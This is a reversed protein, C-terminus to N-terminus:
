GMMREIAEAAAHDSRDGFLHAYVKLTIVPSSHGLRRSVSVVDIGAKVLASAHTHRLAHFTINPVGRIRRIQRNWQVSLNNPRIPSGDNESFVLADPHRLLNGRHQALDAMATPPLSIKRRGHRSKPEKFRLGAKTQELSREITLIAGNIDRWRL